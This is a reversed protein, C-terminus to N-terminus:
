QMYLAVLGDKLAAENASSVVVHKHGSILMFGQITGTESFQPQVEVSNQGRVLSYLHWHWDWTRRNNTGPRELRILFRKQFLSKGYVHGAYEGLLRQMLADFALVEERQREQVVEKLSAHEPQSSSAIRQERQRRAVAEDFWSM